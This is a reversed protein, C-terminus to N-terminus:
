PRDLIKPDVAPLGMRRAAGALYSESLEVGIVRRGLRQAVVATTGSGLFPDLVLADEVSCVRIIRELVAEPMQCPHGTREKFTGAVRSELWVDHDPRFLAAEEGPLLAWVNDPVKGGNVARKDRYKLQRASPVRVEDGRWVWGEGATAHHLAVWSPTFKTTQRPGFTYHWIVTQRWSLGVQGMLVKIEAQYQPGSAVWVSGGPLLARKIETLWQRTWQLYEDDPLRDDYQDYGYGVNFPPDAFVLDVSGAPLSAMVRVCDGCYLRM